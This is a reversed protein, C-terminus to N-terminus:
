PGRGGGAAPLHRELDHRRANASSGSRRARKSRSACTSAESLWGFMAYAKRGRLCALREPAPGRARRLRSAPRDDDGAAGRSHIELFGQGDCSLDGRPEVGRVLLPDDMAVQLGGVDDKARIARHLQEIETERSSELRCGFTGHRARGIVDPTSRGAARHEARRRIHARAPARPLRDVLSGVDPGEARRRRFAVPRHGKPSLLVASVMTATNFSVGSKVAHWRRQSVGNPAAQLPFRPPPQPVDTIHSQQDVLRRGRGRVGIGSATARCPPTMRM